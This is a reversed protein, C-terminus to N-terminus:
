VTKLDKTQKNTRASAPTNQKQKTENKTHPRTKTTATAKYIKQSYLSVYFLHKKNNRQLGNLYDFNFNFLFFPIRLGFHNLNQILNQKYNWVNVKDQNRYNWVNVVDFRLMLQGM